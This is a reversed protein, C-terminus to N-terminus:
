KPTSAPPEGITFKGGLSRAQVTRDYMGEAYLPPV